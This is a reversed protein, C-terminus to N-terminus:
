LKDLVLQLHIRYNSKIREVAQDFTMREDGNIIKGGNSVADEAPNWMQFNLAASEKLLAKCEDIYDPITNLQPLLEQIRDRTKQLFAPDQFLRSYWIANRNILRYDGGTTDFTLVGWDFDWCPGATLKGNKDKHLFVSGPNGLEHNTMVEFVIWYDIFSDIDLYRAYGNSPDKFNNGYIANAVSAIYNKIWTKKEQTLAAPDDPDPHKVAFPINHDKWQFTNDYHFDLELLYGDTKDINIRDGDVRVQEILLYNGVHKGNLVLEVPQCRPTWALRTMSSVKMAVMNRMMTRDMFNALLVWRKHEPFGFISAKEELKVLYPKKPWSWTTNGRGRISCNVEQLGALDETGVISIKANVFTEKSTIAVGGQTDVFVVPLGTHVMGPKPAKGAVLFNPSEIAAGQDSTICLKVTRNYSEDRTDNRIIAVYSGAAQDREYSELHFRSPVNGDTGLLSVTKFECDPDEVRFRLPASGGPELTIANDILVISKLVPGVPEEPTQEEPPLEPEPEAAPKTCAFVLALVAAYALLRRM